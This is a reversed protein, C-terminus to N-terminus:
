LWNAIHTSEPGVVFFELTINMCTQTRKQLTCTKTTFHTRQANLGQGLNKKARAQSGTM